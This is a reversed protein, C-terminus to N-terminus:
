PIADDEQEECEEENELNYKDIYSNYSNSFYILLVIIFAIFCFAIIYLFSLNASYSEIVAQINCDDVLNMKNRQLQDYINFEQIVIIKNNQM